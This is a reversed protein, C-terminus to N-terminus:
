VMFEEHFWTQTTNTGRSCRAELARATRGEDAEKAKASEEECGQGLGDDGPCSTEVQPRDGVHRDAAVRFDQEGHIRSRAGRRGEREGIIRRGDAGDGQGRVGPQEM